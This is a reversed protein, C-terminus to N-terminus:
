ISILIKNKIYCILGFFREFAHEIMGDRFTNDNKNNIIAHLLNPSINNNNNNYHKIANIKNIQINNKFFEVLIEPHVQYNLYWNYDVSNEDNLLNYIKDLGYNILVDIIERNMIMCTGGIFYFNKIENNENIMKDLEKNKEKFINILDKVHNYNNKNLNFNTKYTREKSGIIGVIKNDLLEINKELNYFIPKFMSNRWIDDTKTHCTIYIDNNYDNINKLINIYGGIDFGKNNSTFLKINKYRENNFYKKVLINIEEINVINNVINFYLNIDYNNKSLKELELLYIIIRKFIYINGIHCLVCITKKNKIKKNIENKNKENNNIKNFIDKNIKNILIKKEKCIDYLYIINHLRLNNYLININDVYKNYNNEKLYIIRNDYIKNDLENIYETIIYNNNKDKKNLLEIYYIYNENYEDLEIFLINNNLSMEMMFNYKNYNKNLKIININYQDDLFLINEYIENISIIYIKIINKIYLLLNLLNKIINNNTTINLILILKNNEIDDNKYISKDIFYKIQSKNIIRKKYFNNNIFHIYFEDNKNIINSNNYLNEYLEVDLLLLISMFKKVSIDINEYIKYWDNNEYKINLPLNEINFEKYFEERTIKNKIEYYSM